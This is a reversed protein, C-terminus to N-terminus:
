MQEQQVKYFLMIGHLKTLLVRIDQTKNLKEIIKM